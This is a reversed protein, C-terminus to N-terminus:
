APAPASAMDSSTSVESPTQHCERSARRARAKWVTVPLPNRGRVIGSPRQFHGAVASMRSYKTTAITSGSSV